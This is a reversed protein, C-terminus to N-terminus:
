LVSALLSTCHMAMGQPGMVTTDPVAARPVEFPPLITGARVMPACLYPSQPFMRCRVLVVVRHAPVTVATTSVAPSSALQELELEEDLVVVVAPVEVEVEEPLGGADVMVTPAMEVSVPEM